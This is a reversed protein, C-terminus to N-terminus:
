RLQDAATELAEQASVGEQLAQVLVETTVLEVAEPFDESLTIPYIEDILPLITDFIDTGNVFYETFQNEEQLRPNDWVSYRPPDFGLEEWIRINGEESGKAFALFEAALETHDGGSPVVTGTGGMGASRYGDEEFRPLPRLAIKGDLDSMLDVFRGMYWFPMLVSAAGEDNMFGYYEEAHHNGGPAIEAIEDELMQQQFELTDVLLPDDLNIEGEESIFGVQRQASMPLFSWQDTLEVTTMPIDLEDRVQEGAEVYDDWTEIEDIDVGAEDMLDVNYYMVTAGVHFPLGYVTDNASFITLRSEVFDDRFDAIYDDMPEFQINGRMFSPFRSIEIDVIDPLGVGSQIAVLLNDHMDDYPYATANLEIQRDPNEENWLEAMGEYFSNHLAQFTWFEIETPEGDASATEDGDGNGDGNGCAAFLFLVAVFLSGFSILKNM